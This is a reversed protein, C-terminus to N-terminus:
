AEHRKEYFAALEPAMKELTPLDEYAMHGNEHVKYEIRSTISEPLFMKSISHKVNWFPTAADHIGGFFLVRCFPNRRLATGMDYATNPCVPSGMTGPAQADLEVGREGEHFAAPQDALGQLGDGPRAEDLRVPGADHHRRRLDREPSSSTTAKCMWTPRSPSARITAATFLGEDAMITKRFTDLEIRLHKGEIFEAPLGILESMEVALEHEEEPRSPTARSSARGYKEDVFKWARDFWEFQDVGAGAKGFYNATAAYVPLMGMYYLDNGSLTPAYDLITSQEIVGTLAIGREGLVRMLVSNRMTGYSEGYLYLPTNWREHTTLWQAIGRMFADADGDAGWVKKPDYGEAVKSYGTGMADLYVLDTTPLLSYPNDEPKTPCPLQKITNIPVRRPGLGGINVMASSGGPGGNWCFTVPRDSKDAADSVYSLAFM